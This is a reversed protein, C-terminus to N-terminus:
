GCWRVLGSRRRSLSGITAQADAGKAAAGRAVTSAHDVQAAVEHIAAALEESAAAVIQANKMAQDAAGAVHEANASVRGASAAMANADRAMAGTRDAVMEVVAGAEQEITHAMREVTERRVLASKREFEAREWSAFALHARMARLMATVHHFERAAPRKIDAAMDGHLIATFHRELDRACRRVTTLLTWGLAAVALLSALAVAIGAVLRWGLSAVANTYAM